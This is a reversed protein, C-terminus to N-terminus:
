ANLRKAPNGVYISNDPINNLVVSGAGVIVNRGIKIGQKVVSNAGIFSGDGISVNGCLVASPAIHTAIGLKCEHEIVAGTNVISYDGIEVCTNVSVNRSLFIGTGVKLFSSLKVSPHIINIIKEKKQIIKESVKKRIVNDGIGIIFNFGRGYGLFKEDSELGLFELNFPNNKAIEKEAYYRLSVGMEIACDGLVLGHGSYGVLITKINKQM